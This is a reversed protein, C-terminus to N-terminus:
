RTRTLLPLYLRRGVFIAISASGTMGDSDRATLTITHVGASLQEVLLSRGVGLSGDRDSTWVLAADGLAGDEADSGLGSFLIPEGFPYATATDPQVLLALPAKRAVRFVASDVATTNVGDSVRLRLRAQQSGPLARGDLLTESEQLNVAVPLWTAGGDRSYLIQATLTDGDLDSMEWSVPFPGPGTWLEGGRPSQFRATPPHASVPTQAVIQEGHRFVIRRVGAPYPVIEHFHGIEHDGGQLGGLPDFRRVFLTQGSSNRLEITYPGEGEDDYQGPAFTDEWFPRLLLTGNDALRGSVILYPEDGARHVYAPAGVQGTQAASTPASPATIKLLRTKYHYPSFWRTGCYSMLDHASNPDFLEGTAPRVGVEGIIAGSNTGYPWAPDVNAPNGCPAHMLGYAHGVEHTMTTNDNSGLIGAAVGTRGCGAVDPSNVSQHMYGYITAHAPRNKWGDYLDQLDNLLDTWGNRCVVGNTVYNYNAVWQWNPVGWIQVSPIPFTDDLFALSALLDPDNTAPSLNDAQVNVLWVHAQSATYFTTQKSSQNNAYNTEPLGNGPNVKADLQLAGASLWSTPLIFNVSRALDLRADALSFKGITGTRTLVGLSTAGRRGRLEVAVNPIAVQAPGSAVYVRVMTAKDAVLPTASATDQTVQVAEIGMITFDPLPPTTVLLRYANVADWAPNEPPLGRVALKWKGPQNNATYTITEQPPGNQQSTARLVGNPDYLGMYYNKPLNSLTASITAMGPPVTFEYWDQDWAPCIYGNRASGPTLPTAATSADGAEDAPCVATKLRYPTFKNWYANGVKSRVAVRYSGTNAATYQIYEPTVGFEGSADVLNASPNYLFLDYDGLPSAPLDSLWLQVVQGATVPFKWYDEDGSPCIYEQTSGQNVATLNGAAGFTDAAADPHLCVPTATATPSATPTPTPTPMAGAPVVALELTPCFETYHRSSFTRVWYIGPNEPGQLALGYNSAGNVWRQVLDRVNWGFINGSAGAPIEARALSDASLVPRNNWTVTMESWRSQVEHLAVIVSEPAGAGGTYLARFTASQIQSGPPIFSLDFRALTRRARVEGPAHGYGVRLEAGGGFNTTPAYEDVYADAV